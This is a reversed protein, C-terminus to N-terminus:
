VKLRKLAVEAAYQEAERKSKGTGEGLINGDVKVAVTFIRANDPGVEKVLQYKPTEFKQSQCYEQLTSKPDKLPEALKKNLNALLNKLIFTKAQDLGQDIFIAGIVAETTDALLSSNDRGGGDVEGKSLFLSEGLKLQRALSALNKTNVINARLATLYGEEKDPLKNYLYETVVLELVADGLFELRENSERRKPNENIWSRHTLAQDFLAKNKFNNKVQDLNKM